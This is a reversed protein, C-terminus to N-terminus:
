DAAPQEGQNALALQLWGDDVLARVIRLKPADDDAIPLKPSQLIYTDALARSLKRQVALRLTQQRGSLAPAKEGRQELPRVRLRGQRVLVLQGERQQVDYAADVTMAPYQVDESDFSTIYFKARIQGAALQLDCPHEAFTARFDGTRPKEDITAGLVDGIAHSLEAGTMERGALSALAQEELASAAICFRLDATPEFEPPPGPAAFLAPSELRCEWRLTEEDCRVRIQPTRRHMAFQRDRLQGYSRNFQEMLDDGEVNMRSAIERRTAAEADAEARDRRANTRRIAENRRRRFGPSDISDFVISTDATTTAPEASLGHADLVFRKEGQFQTKATSSVTVRQSTGRTRALSTGQLLFRAQAVSESSLVECRMTGTLTGSGYSRTGAFVEDIEYRDNFQQSLQDQLWETRVELVINPRSFQRRISTTLASSQGLRERQNVRAAIHAATESSADAAHALLEGLETWATSYQERSENALYRRYLRIYSQVALSAEILEPANWVAPAGQWRAELRDLLGPDRVDTNVLARTAPWSLFTQWADDPNSQSRLLREFPDLRNQLERRAGQVAEPTVETYTEAQRDCADSWQEAPIPTLEAVRTELADALRQLLPARFDTRTGARVQAATSQMVAPEAHEGMRLEYEVDELALRHSWISWGPRSGYTDAVDRLIARAERAAPTDVQGHAARGSVTFVIITLLGCLARWTTTMAAPRWTEHGANGHQRAM